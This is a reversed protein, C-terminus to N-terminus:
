IQTHMLMLIALRLSDVFDLSGPLTGKVLPDLSVIYVTVSTAAGTSLPARVM